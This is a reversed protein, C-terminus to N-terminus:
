DLNIKVSQQSAHQTVITLVGDAYSASKITRGPMPYNLELTSGNFQVFESTQDVTIKISPLGEYVDAVVSINQKDIGPLAVYLEDGVQSSQVANQNVRENWAQHMADRAERLPVGLSNLMDAFARESKTANPNVAGGTANFMQELEKLIQNMANMKIEKNIM